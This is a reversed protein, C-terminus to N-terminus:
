AVPFFYVEYSVTATPDPPEEFCSVEAEDGSHAVTVYGTYAPNSDHPPVLPFSVGLCDAADVAGPSLVEVLYRGAPLRIGTTQFQSLQYSAYTVRRFYAAVPSIQQPGAPGSIGSISPSAAGRTSGDPVVPRSWSVSTGAIVIALTLLGAVLVRKRNM